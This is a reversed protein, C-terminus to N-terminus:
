NFKKCYILFIHFLTFTNFWIFEYEIFVWKKGIFNSKPSMLLKRSDSERINALLETSIRYNEFSITQLRKCSNLIAKISESKECSIVSKYEDSIKLHKLKKLKSISKLQTWQTHNGSLSIPGNTIRSTLDHASCWPLMLQIPLLNMRQLLRCGQEIVEDARALFM